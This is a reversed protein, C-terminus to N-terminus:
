GCTFLVGLAPVSVSGSTSDRGPSVLVAASRRGVATTTGFPIRRCLSSRRRSTSSKKDGRIARFARAAVDVQDQRGLPSDTSTIVSGLGLMGM